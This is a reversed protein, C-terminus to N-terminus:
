YSEKNPDIIRFHRFHPEDLDVEWPMVGQTRMFYPVCKALEFTTIDEKPEWHMKLPLLAKYELQAISNEKDM